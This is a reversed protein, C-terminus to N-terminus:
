RYRYQTMYISSSKDKYSFDVRVQYTYSYNPSSLKRMVKINDVCSATANKFGRVKNIKEMINDIFKNSFKNLKYDHVETDSHLYPKLDARQRRKAIVSELDESDIFFCNQIYPNKLSNITYFKKVSVTTPDYTELYKSITCKIIEISFCYENFVYDRFYNSRVRYMENPRDPHMLDVSALHDYRCPNTSSSIYYGKNLFDAVQKTYLMQVDTYSPM